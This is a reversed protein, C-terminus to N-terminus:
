SRGALEWEMGFLRLRGTDEDVEFVTSEQGSGFGLERTKREAQAMGMICGCVSLLLLMAGTFGYFFNSWFEKKSM